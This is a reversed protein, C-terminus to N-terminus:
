INKKSLMEQTYKLLDTLNKLFDKVESSLDPNINSYVEIEMSPIEDSGRFAEIDGQENEIMEIEDMLADFDTYIADDVMIDIQYAFMEESLAEISIDEYMDIVVGGVMGGGTKEYHKHVAKSDASNLGTAILSHTNTKLAKKPM